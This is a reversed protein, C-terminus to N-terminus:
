YYYIILYIITGRRYLIAFNDVLLSRLKDKNRIWMRIENNNIVQEPNINM